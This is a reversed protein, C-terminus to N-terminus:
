SKLLSSYTTSIAKMPSYNALIKRQANDNSFRVTYATGASTQALGEVRGIGFQPHLVTQGISLTEPDQPPADEASPSPSYSFTGQPKICHAPIEKFFRSIRMQHLGGFLCRTQAASLFLRDKARTMGVYLLRREEEIEGKGKKANIHPFLDEELGVIFVVPFELGKANHVTALTVQPGAEKHHDRSGELVLEEIFLLPSAGEHLDDWEQARSFLQEINERREVVTEPDKDLIRQYGSDHVAASILDLASGREILSRLSSILTCFTALSEQQKKTVIGDGHAADLAVDYIPRNTDTALQRLKAITVEGIGRGVIKLAREFAVLDQPQSAIQLLSLVDKIERRSYFPTGGWIRYPIQYEILRDELPRSQANTRYLVAIHDYEIASSRLTEITSAVFEAEQRETRAVYRVIPEGRGRDSWLNKELRNENYSILANSAELITNSSRYNQELRIITASPFTNQFSLIHTIKAGRWSYISQDPDGVAFINTTGGVLSSAFQCQCDSTDQYEDVLLYHWHDQYRKLAEPFARFLELPLYILDDFDVAGSIKLRKQYQEFLSQTLSDFSTLAAPTNKIQSFAAKFTPLESDKCRFGRDKLCDKLIKESEDEAYIVFTQPYGLLNISERLIRAGLSHFTSVLVESGVLRHVRERMERAAKNTFTVAVIQQPCVGSRILQAIRMTAVRTKGSGAGAIVLAPGRQHCVAQRQQPNLRDFERDFHSHDM